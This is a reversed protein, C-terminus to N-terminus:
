DKQESQSYPTENFVGKESRLNAQMKKLMKEKFTNLSGVKEGSIGMEMAVEILGRLIENYSLKHSTSFLSDKGLKDLFELEQRNLMTIVRHTTIKQNTKQM